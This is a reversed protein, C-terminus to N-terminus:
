PEVEYGIEIIERLHAPVFTESRMQKIPMGMSHALCIENQMGASITLGYVWVESCVGTRLVNLCNNLGREREEPREDALALVDAVYPAFPIVDPRTLDIRRIIQIIRYINMKVDGGIPHAIYVIKM